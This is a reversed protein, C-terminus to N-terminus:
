SHKLQHVLVELGHEGLDRNKVSAELPDSRPQREHFATHRLELRRHGALAGVLMMFGLAAIREVFREADCERHRVQQRARRNALDRTQRVACRWMMFVRLGVGAEM